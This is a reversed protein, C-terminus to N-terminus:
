KAPLQTVQGDSFVPRRRGGLAHGAASDHKADLRAARTEGWEPKWRERASSPQRRRGPGRDPGARQAQRATPVFFGATAQEATKGLEMVKDAVTARPRLGDLRVLGHGRSRRRAAGVQRKIGQRNAAAREQVDRAIFEPFVTAVLGAPNKTGVAGFLWTSPESDLFGTHM